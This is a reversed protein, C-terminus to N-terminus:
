GGGAVHRQARGEPAALHIVLASVVCLWALLVFLGRWGLYEIVWEAPATATVAGLAGLMIMYGNALAVREPPVWLVIAKLGAMLATAVGLGILARGFMLGAVSEAFAFLLSGAAAVLLLVSQVRRPGYRDLAIGAPLQVAVFALFYVSTMSGLEAPGLKFETALTSAIVASITRFVYSLYYGAAFPLLVTAIM